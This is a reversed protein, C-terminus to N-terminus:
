GLFDFYIYILISARDIYGFEFGSVEVCRAAILLSIMSSKTIAGLSMESLAGEVHHSGSAQYIKAHIDRQM